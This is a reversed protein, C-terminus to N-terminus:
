ASTQFESTSKTKKKGRQTRRVVIFGIGTIIMAGGILTRWGIQESLVMMGLIVAVVPTVLSILMSKTVDMNLILWYYLLL